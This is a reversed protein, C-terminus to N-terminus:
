KYQWHRRLAQFVKNPYRTSGYSGNYRALAMTYDGKEMDLYYRLITTGFRLNTHLNFLNDKPRKLEKLWFPMVQMLGRAGARSIAFRDFNSEVQVVALVLEPPLESRTAEIHLTKLFELREDEEPMRKALRGSMDVLWVEAAFRDEFGSQESLAEVLRNKLAQDVIPKQASLVVPSCLLVLGVLLRITYKLECTSQKM